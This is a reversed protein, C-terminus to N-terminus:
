KHTGACFYQNFQLNTHKARNPGEPNINYDHKQFSLRWGRKLRVEHHFQFIEMYPLHKIDSIYPMRITLFGIIKALIPGACPTHDLEYHVFQCTGSSNKYVLWINPQDILELVYIETLEHTGAFDAEVMRIHDTFVMVTSGEDFKFINQDESSVLRSSMCVSGKILSRRTDDVTQGSINKNNPLQIVM